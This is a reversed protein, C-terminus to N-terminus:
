DNLNINKNKERKLDDELDSIKNMKEIELKNNKIELMEVKSSKEQLKKDLDNNKQKINKMEKELDNNKKKLIISNM